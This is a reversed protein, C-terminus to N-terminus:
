LDDYVDVFCVITISYPPGVARRALIAVGEVIKNNFSLLENM